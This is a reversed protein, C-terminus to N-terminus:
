PTSGSQCCLKVQSKLKSKLEEELENKTFRLETISFNDIVVQVSSKPAKYENFDLTGNQLMRLEVEQKNLCNIAEGYLDISAILNGMDM